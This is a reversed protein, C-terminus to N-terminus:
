NRVALIGKSTLLKQLQGSAEAQATETGGGIFQGDIFVRPVSTAGTMQGLIKQIEAGDDRDDLEIM